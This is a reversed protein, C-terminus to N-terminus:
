SSVEIKRPKHAEAKPLTLTLVGNQFGATIRDPDIRPGITFRRQFGGIDYEQYLLQHKEPPHDAKATLTLVGERYDLDLDQPQVGPLDAYLFIAESNEAIDVDPVYTVGEKLPEGQSTQIEKKDSVQIEQREKRTM